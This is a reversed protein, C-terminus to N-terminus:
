LSRRRPLSSCYRIKIFSKNREEFLFNPILIDDEPPDELFSNVTYSIFRKPYGAKKPMTTLSLLFANRETSPALLVIEKGNPLSKQNSTDLFRDPIEEVTFVINPYYSNLRELLGQLDDPKGLSFVCHETEVAM